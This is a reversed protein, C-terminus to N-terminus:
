HRGWGRVGDLNGLVEFNIHRGPPLDANPRKLELLDGAETLLQMRSLSGLDTPLDNSITLEGSARILGQNHRFAEIEYVADVIPRGNRQLVGKGSIKGLYQM